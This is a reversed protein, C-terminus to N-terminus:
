FRGSELYNEISVGVVRLITRWCRGSELYDEIVIYM